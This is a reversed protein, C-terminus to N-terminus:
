TRIYARSGTVAPGRAEGGAITEYYAYPQQTRPDIGGITLNNMTGSSAAPIRDPLMRAFARLLVDVIRQSTEVNGGAVAAPPRADVVSGARTLVRVPRMLGATPAAEEPLLCRLVYFVASYTVAFVANLSGGVQPDSGAFDITIRDQDQCAIKVRIAVPQDTTGDNDLFDEAQFEGKPLRALLARMLAESHDMLAAVNSTVRELGYKQILEIGRELM